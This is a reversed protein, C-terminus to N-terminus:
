PASRAEAGGLTPWWRNLRAAAHVALPHPPASGEDSVEDAALVELTAALSRALAGLAYGGELVLGVPVGLEAAFRRVVATMAAYGAETVTCTALPDEAHADFGASLLVLEPAYALAVPAVVDAVLSVFEANGSGSPVPLNLTFGEGEGNGVDSAPGTGPYLPWEHLSVYLVSPSSVFAAETGNGHHVDWDLVLVRSLGRVSLAHQAAVAVNNFLCFGM